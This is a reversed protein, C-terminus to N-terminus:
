TRQIGSNVFALPPQLRRYSELFQNAAPGKFVIPKVVGQIFIEVAWLGAHAPSQGDLNITPPKDIKRIFAVKETDIVYDEIDVIM